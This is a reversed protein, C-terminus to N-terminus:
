VTGRGVLHLIRGLIAAPVVWVLDAASGVGLAVLPLDLYPPVVRGKELLGDILFYDLDLEWGVQLGVLLLVQLLLLLLVPRLGPM